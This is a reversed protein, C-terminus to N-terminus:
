RMARRRVNETRLIRWSLRTGDAGDSPYLVLFAGDGLAHAQPAREIRETAAVTVLQGSTLGDIAVSFAHVDNSQGFAIVCDTDDCAIGPRVSKDPDAYVSNTGRRTSHYLIGGRDPWSVVFGDQAAALNTPPLPLDRGQTAPGTATAIRTSDTKGSITWLVRSEWTCWSFGCGVLSIRSDSTAVIGNAAAVGSPIHISDVATLVDGNSAFSSVKGGGWMRYVTGDWVLRLAFDNSTVGLLRGHQRPAGIPVGHRDLQVGMARQLGGEHEVWVVYYSDGDSAVAPAVAVSRATRAPLSEVPASLRGRADLAGVRIRNEESWALVIGSRSAAAAPQGGNLPRAYPGHSQESLLLVAALLLSM